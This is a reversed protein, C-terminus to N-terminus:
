SANAVAEKAGPLGFCSQGQVSRGEKGDEM